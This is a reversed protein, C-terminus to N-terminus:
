RPFSIIGTGFGISLGIPGFSILLSQNTPKVSASPQKKM